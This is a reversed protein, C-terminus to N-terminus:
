EGYMVTQIEGIAEKGQGPAFVAYYDNKYVLGYKHKKLFSFMYDKKGSYSNHQVEWRLDGATGEEFGYAYNTRCFVVLPWTKGFAQRAEKYDKKLSEAPYSFQTIWPKGYAERGTMYYFLLSNGFVALPQDKDYQDLTDLVGELAEKEERTTYISRVRPNDVTQTLRTRDIADYNFTHYVMNGFHLFFVLATIGATVGLLGPRFALGAKALLSAAAQKAAESAALKKWVYVSVPFLLWLAFIIHKTGTNTGALTLFVQMFAALSLLTIDLSKQDRRCAHGALSLFGTVYLVGILFRPGTTQQPWDEAPNVAYAFKMQYLAVGLVMLAFTGYLLKQWPSEASQRLIHLAILILAAAGYFMLGSTVAKLSQGFLDRLLTGFAYSSQSDQAIDKLRFINEIFFNMRGTSILFAALSAGCAGGGLLFSALHGLVKGAKQRTMIGWYLYLFCTGAAIVSGIRSFVVLAYVFGALVSVAKKDKRIAHIELCLILTLLFANLQHYNFINLYCDASIVALLLGTLVTLDGLIDRASVYVVLALIWELLVELLNYAILGYQGFLQGWGWAIATTLFTTYNIKDPHTLFNTYAYLHYGTDGLDLGFFAGTLPYLLILLILVAGLIRRKVPQKTGGTKM